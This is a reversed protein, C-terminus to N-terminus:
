RIRQGPGIGEIWLREVGSPGVDISVRQGTRVHRLRSASFVSASFALERGNDTLVSGEGTALDFRHITAQM